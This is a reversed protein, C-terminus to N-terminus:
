FDFFSDFVFYSQIIDQLIMSNKFQSCFISKLFSDFKLHDEFIQDNKYFILKEIQRPFYEENKFSNITQHLRHCPSLKVLRKKSIDVAKYYEIIAPDDNLFVRNFESRAEDLTVRRQKELDEKFKKFIQKRIFRYSYKILEDKRKIKSSLLRQQEEITVQFSYSNNRLTMTVMRTSSSKMIFLNSLIVYEPFLTMDIKDMLQATSCAFLGPDVCLPTTEEEKYQEFKIIHELIKSNKQHTEPDIQTLFIPKKIKFNLYCKFVDMLMVFFVLLKKLVKMMRCGLNGVLREDQFYFFDSIREGHEDGEGKTEGPGSEIYKKVSKISDFSIEPWFPEFTSVLRSRNVYKCLILCFSRVRMKQNPFTLSEKELSPQLNIINLLHQSKDFSKSFYKMKNLGSFMLNVIKEKLNGHNQEKNQSAFFSNKLVNFMNQRLQILSVGSEMQDLVVSSEDNM